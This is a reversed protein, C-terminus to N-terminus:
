KSWISESRSASTGPIYAHTVQSTNATAGETAALLTHRTLFMRLSSQGAMRPRSQMQSDDVGQISKPECCEQHFRRCQAGMLLFGREEKDPIEWIECLVRGCACMGEFFLVFFGETTKHACINQPGSYDHTTPGNVPKGLVRHILLLWGFNSWCWSPHYLIQPPVRYTNSTGLNQRNHGMCRQLSCVLVDCWGMWTADRYWPQQM